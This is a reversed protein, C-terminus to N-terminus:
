QRHSSTVARARDGPGLGALVDDSPAVIVRIAFITSGRQPQRECRRRSSPTIAPPRYARGGGSPVCSAAARSLRSCWGCRWSRSARAWAAACAEASSIWIYTGAPQELFREPRLASPDPLRGRPLAPSVVRALRVGEDVATSSPLARLPLSRAARRPGSRPDRSDRAPAAEATFLMERLGAHMPDTVFVWTGENAIQM